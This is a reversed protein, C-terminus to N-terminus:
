QLGGITNSTIYDIGWNVLQLCKNFDDVTWANVDIKASHCDLINQQTITSYECDIGVNSIASLSNIITSTISNVLYQLKVNSIKRIETLINLGFSIVICNNEYNHKRLTAVFSPILTIDCSQKIEIIPVIGNKKCCILFEDLTPVKLSPYSNFCNGSDITASKVESLTLTSLGGTGNTMRDISDDHMLIWFGDKTTTVDTEGGWFGFDSAKQYAVLTNEPTCVNLGRHAIFKIKNEINGTINTVSGTGGLTLSDVYSKDAKLLNKEDVYTIDAKLPLQKSSVDTLSTELNTVKTTLATTDGGVDSSSMIASFMSYDKTDNLFTAEDIFNENPINGLLEDLRSKSNMISLNTGFDSFRSGRIQVTDFAVPMFIPNAYSWNCKYYVIVKFEDTATTSTKYFGYRFEGNPTEDTWNKFSAKLNLSGNPMPLATITFMGVPQTKDGSRLSYTLLSLLFRTTSREQDPVAWYDDQVLFEFLKIYTNPVKCDQSKYSQFREYQPHPNWRENHNITNLTIPEGTRSANYGM